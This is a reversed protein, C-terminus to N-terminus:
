APKSNDFSVINNLLYISKTEQELNTVCVKTSWAHLINIILVKWVCLAIQM